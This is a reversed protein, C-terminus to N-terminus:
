ESGQQLVKKRSVFERGGRCRWIHGSQRNIEGMGGKRRGFLLLLMIDGRPGGDWSLRKVRLDVGFKSYRRPTYAKLFPLTYLYRLKMM